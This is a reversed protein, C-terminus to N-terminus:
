ERTAPVTTKIKEAMIGRFFFAFKDALFIASVQHAVLNCWEEEGEGDSGRQM